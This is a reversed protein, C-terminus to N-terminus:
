TFKKETLWFNCTFAFQIKFQDWKAESDFITFGNLLRKILNRSKLIQFFIWGM